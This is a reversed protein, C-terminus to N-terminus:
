RSAPRDASPRHATFRLVMTTASAGGGAATLSGRDESLAFTLPLPYALRLRGGSLVQARARIWGNLIGGDPRAGWAFLITAQRGQVEEVVLRIPVEDDVVGEWIGSLGASPAEAIPGSERVADPQAPAPPLQAAVMYAGLLTGLCATIAVGKSM